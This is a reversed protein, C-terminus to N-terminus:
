MAFKVGARIDIYNFDSAAIKYMASIDLTASGMPMELGAGAAYGLGSSFDGITSGGDVSISFSTYGLEAVAYVTPMFYYKYGAMFQIASLTTSFSEEVTILQGTTYDYDYSSYKFDGSWMLYSGNVYASMNPALSMEYRAGGGFGMSYDFVTAADGGAFALEAGVGIYNKSQANSYGVVLLLVFLTAMVKKM